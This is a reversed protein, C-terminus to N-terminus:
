TFCGAREEGDLHNCFLPCLTSFLWVLVFCLVGVFRAVIFFHILLLLVVAESRVVIRAVPPKM